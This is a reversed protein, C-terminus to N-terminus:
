EPRTVRGVALLLIKLGYVIPVDIRSLGAAAHRGLFLAPPNTPERRTDIKFSAPALSPAGQTLSLCEHNSCSATDM